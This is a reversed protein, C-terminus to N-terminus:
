GTRRQAGHGAGETRSARDRMFKLYEIMLSKDEASTLTLKEWIEWEWDPTSERSVHSPVEAVTDTVTRQREQREIERLIEAAEHKGIEVLQEPTVGVVHAMHALQAEGMLALKGGSHERGEELQRWRRGSLRIKLLGAAQDYTLGRAERARRILKAEVPPVAAPPAAEHPHSPM